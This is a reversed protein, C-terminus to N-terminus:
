APFPRKGMKELQKQKRPHSRGNEVYCVLEAMTQKGLWGLQWRLLPALLVGPFWPLEVEGRTTLECWNEGLSRVLWNNVAEKVIRPLGETARYGFRMDAEDYYTFSEAM